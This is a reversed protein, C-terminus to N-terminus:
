KNDEKQLATKQTNAAKALMHSALPNLFLFLFMLLLIKLSTMSFELYIIFGFGFCLFGLTDFLSSISISVIFNHHKWIGYIGFAMFFIGASFLIYATIERM